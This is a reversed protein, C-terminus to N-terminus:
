QAHDRLASTHNGIRTPAHGTPACVDVARRCAELLRALSERAAQPGRHRGAIEDGQSGRDGVAIGTALESALAISVDYFIWWGV